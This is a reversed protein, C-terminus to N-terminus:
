HHDHHRKDVQKKVVNVSLIFFALFGYAFTLAIAVQKPSNFGEHAKISEQAAAFGLLQLVVVIGVLGSSAAM